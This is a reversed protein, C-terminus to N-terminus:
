IQSIFAQTKSIERLFAYIQIKEEANIPLYYPLSPVQCEVWDIPEFWSYKEKFNVKHRLRVAASIKALYM